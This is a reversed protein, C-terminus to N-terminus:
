CNEPCLFSQKSFLLLCGLFSETCSDILVQKSFTAFVKTLLADYLVAQVPHKLSWLSSQSPNLLLQLHQHRTLNLASNVPMYLCYSHLLLFTKVTFTSNERHNYM